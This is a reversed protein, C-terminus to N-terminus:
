SGERDKRQRRKIREGVGRKGGGGGRYGITDGPVGVRQHCTGQVYKRNLLHNAVNSISTGQGAAIEGVGNGGEGKGRGDGM